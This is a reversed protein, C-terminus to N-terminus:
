IQRLISEIREFYRADDILKQQEEESLSDYNTIESHSKFNYISSLLKKSIIERYDDKSLDNLFVSCELHKFGNPRMAAFNIRILRKNGSLTKIWIDQTTLEKLGCKKIVERWTQWLVRQKNIPIYNMLTHNAIHKEYERDSAILNISQAFSLIEIEDQHMKTVKKETELNMDFAFFYDRSEREVIESIYYAIETAITKLINSGSIENEDNIFTNIDIEFQLLLGNKAKLKFLIIDARNLNDDAWDIFSEGKFLLNTYKKWISTIQNFLASNTRVLVKKDAQVPNKNSSDFKGFHRITDLVSNFYNRILSTM